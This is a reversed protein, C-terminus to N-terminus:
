HLKFNIIRKIEVVAQASTCAVNWPKCPNGTHERTKELRGFVYLKIQLRGTQILRQGSYGRIGARLQEQCPDHVGTNDEETKIHKTHESISKKGSKYVNTTQTAIAKRNPWEVRVKLFGVWFVATSHM